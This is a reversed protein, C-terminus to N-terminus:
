ISLLVIIIVPATGTCISKAPWYKPYQAGVCHVTHFSSIKGNKAKESEQMIYFAISYLLSSM